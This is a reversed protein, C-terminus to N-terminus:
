TVWLLVLAYRPEWQMYLGYSIAILLINSLRMEFERNRWKAGFAVVIYYVAFIIPFLWLFQFSNFLM